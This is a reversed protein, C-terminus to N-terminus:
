AVAKALLPKMVESRRAGVKQWSYDMVAAAAAAGEAQRREPDHFLSLLAAELVDPDKPDIVTATAKEIGMRGAGAFSTVSPLGHLAAEYSVLPDGEELSPFVFVDASAYHVDVNRTFGVAEVRDSALVDAYRDALLPEIRGVLKLRAGPPMRNWIQLLYHAGKRVCVYGCFLFTVPAGPARAPKPGTGRSPAPALDVGYSSRLFRGELPSNVLAQEVVDSPAFITTALALKEEEEDIRAQSIGHGPPAGMADYAADLIPKAHAMRTNIGELVIPVKREALVEHTRLSVSPWLWAIDGPRTRNLYWRELLATAPASTIRYPLHALPGPLATLIRAASHETRIRNVMLDLDAGARVMGDALQACTHSPGIGDAAMPLLTRIM